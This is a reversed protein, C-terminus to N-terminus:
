YTDKQKLCTEGAVNVVAWGTAITALVLGISEIGVYSGVSTWPGHGTRWLHVLLGLGIVSALSNIGGGLIGAIEHANECTTDKTLCPSRSTTWVGWAAWVIIGTAIAASSALITADTRKMQFALITVVVIAVIAISMAFRRAKETATSIEQACNM